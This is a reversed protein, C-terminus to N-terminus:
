QAVVADAGAAPSYRTSGFREGVRKRTSEVLAITPLAAGPLLARCAREVVVGGAVQTPDVAIAVAHVQRAERVPDHDETQSHVADSINDDVTARSKSM